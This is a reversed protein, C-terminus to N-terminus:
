VVFVVSDLSNFIVLSFNNLSIELDSQVKIFILNNLNKKNMTDMTKISSLFNLIKRIGQVGKSGIM